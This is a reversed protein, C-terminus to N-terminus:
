YINYISKHSRTTSSFSISLSIITITYTDSAIGLIVANSQKEDDWKKEKIFLCIGNQICKSVNLILQLERSISYNLRVLSSVTYM